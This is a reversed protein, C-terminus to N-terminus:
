VASKGLVKAKQADYAALYPKLVNKEFFPQMHGDKSVIAGFEKGTHASPGWEVRAITPDVLSGVGNLDVLLAHDDVVMLTMHAPEQKGSNTITLRM